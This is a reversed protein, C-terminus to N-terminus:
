FMGVVACYRQEIVNNSLTTRYRQDRVQDIVDILLWM